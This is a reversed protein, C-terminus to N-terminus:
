LAICFPLNSWFHIWFRILFLTLGCRVVYLLKSLYMILKYFIGWKHYINSLKINKKCWDSWQGYGREGQWVKSDVLRINWVHRITGRTRQMCLHFIMCYISKSLLWTKSIGLGNFCYTSILEEVVTGSQYWLSWYLSNNVQIQDPLFGGHIPWFIYARKNVTVIQGSILIPYSNVTNSLFNISNTSWLWTISLVATIVCLM